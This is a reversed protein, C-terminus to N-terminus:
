LAAVALGLGVAIGVFVVLLAWFMFRDAGEM